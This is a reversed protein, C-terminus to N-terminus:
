EGDPAEGEEGDKLRLTRRAPDNLLADTFDQREELLSLRGDLTELLGRIQEMERGLQPELKDKSAAELFVGLKNALPKLLIVGAVTITLITAFIMPALIELQGVGM